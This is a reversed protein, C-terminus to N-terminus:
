EAKQRGGEAKNKGEVKEVPDTGPHVWDTTGDAWNEKKWIPVTQKLTDILWQGAEFAARRHASSVAVAVSAEGIELHGLRHVIACEILQWRRRAEAELEALKKAAMEPYCEYDLSETRRGGTLERTTGLFLVVAGARPSQVKQIVSDADIPEETLAVM